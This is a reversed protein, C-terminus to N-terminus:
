VKKPPDPVERINEDDLKTCRTKGGPPIVVVVSGAKKFEPDKEQGNEMTQSEFSGDTTLIRVGCEELALTTSQHPFLGRTLTRFPNTKKSVEQKTSVIAWEPTMKEYVDLPSSHMSGHHAVKIAACALYNTMQMVLPEHKKSRELKPFEDTVVAWSDFEADGALIVVSKGAKRVEEARDEVNYEISKMLLANKSHNEIRLVISANNMDVGYTAYKNRLRMSPALATIQVNGFYWEMGSSVRVMKINNWYLTDLIKHYTQSLHRFGSDWFQQPRFKESELFPRIGRIHDSHPHTACVFALQSYGPRIKMLKNLYSRTKDFKFCDVLGYSRQGEKDEPFEILINDGFGVNLIHIVLDKAKIDKTM